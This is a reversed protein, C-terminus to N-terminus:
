WDEEDYDNDDENLYEDLMTAFSDSVNDSVDDYDSAVDLLEDLDIDFTELLQFYKETYKKIDKPKLYSTTAVWLDLFFELEVETRM